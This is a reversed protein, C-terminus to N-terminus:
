EEANRNASRHSELYHAKLVDGGFDDKFDRWVSHVHNAGNQTNDYEVLFSPGQIRYYHAEKRTETGAWAFFLNNGAAKILGRRHEAIDEPMNAAYEELIAALLERQKANMKTASLGSPQGQLAADRKVASLIDNYAKEAVIATKKQEPTLAAMLDRGLDEERALVRLGTRPGQRVEAPNSGFFTPAAAVRGKAITFSLSIHHGEIRMAWTGTESPEGYISFYYKETNRREGSDNEIVRLVDELSMISTAKIMGKQSLCAGLIAEALHRQPGTMERFTLGKRKTKYLDEFNNDPVFQWKFWDESGFALRAKQAQEPTLSALFAKATATMYVPSHVKDHAAFFLGFSVAALGLRLSARNM